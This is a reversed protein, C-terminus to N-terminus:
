VKETLSFFYEGIMNIPASVHYMWDVHIVGVRHMSLPEAHVAREAFLLYGAMWLRKLRYHRGIM